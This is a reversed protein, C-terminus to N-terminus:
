SFIKRARKATFAEQMLKKDFAEPAEGTSVYYYLAAKAIGSLTSSILMTGLLAIATLVGVTIVGATGAASYALLGGIFGVFIEALAILFIVLGISFQSVGAEKWVSKIMSISQKAASIPGVKQQSDVIIPVAFFAAIRWAMEGLFAIIKGGIFPVREQILQLAQVIGFSLLGFATLAGFRSKVHALGSRITPDGGKLRALAISVVAALTYTSLLALVAATVAWIAYTTYSLNATDTQVYNTVTLTSQDEGIIYGGVFGVTAVVLSITGAVLPVVLVEKDLMLLRWSSRLIRWSRSLSGGRPTNNTQIAQENM